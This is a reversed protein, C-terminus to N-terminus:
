IVGQGKLWDIFDRVQLRLLRKSEEQAIARQQKDYACEKKWLATMRDPDDLKPFRQSLAQMESRFAPDNFFRKPFTVPDYFAGFSVEHGKREVADRDAQAIAKFDFDQWTSASRVGGLDFYDAYDVFAVGVRKQADFANMTLLKPRWSQVVRPGKDPSWEQRRQAIRVGKLPVNTESLRVGARGLEERIAQMADQESLFVPPNTAMCGTGGRGEGHGFIPAVVAPKGYFATDIKQAVKTCGNAALMLAVVGAMEATSKWAAPQHRELLTCDGLVELRTPYRPSKYRIVPSANM